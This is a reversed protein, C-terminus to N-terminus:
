KREERKMESYDGLGKLDQLEEKHIYLQNLLDNITYM